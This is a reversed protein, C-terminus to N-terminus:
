RISKYITKILRHSKFWIPIQGYYSVDYKTLLFESGFPSIYGPMRGITILNRDYPNVDIGDKLHLLITEYILKDKTLIPTIALWFIGVLLVYTIIIVMLIITIPSM